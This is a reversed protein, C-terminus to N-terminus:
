KPQKEQRAQEDLFDTHKEMMEGLPIVLKGEQRNKDIIKQLRMNHVEQATLITRPGGKNNEGFKTINENENENM